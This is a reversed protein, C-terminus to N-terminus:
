EILRMAIQSLLYLNRITSQQCYPNSLLPPTHSFEYNMSAIYVPIVFVFQGHLTKRNAKEEGKKRKKGKEEVSCSHFKFKIM